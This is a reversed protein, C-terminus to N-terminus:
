AAEEDDGYGPNYPDYFNLEELDEYGEEVMYSGCSPCVTERPNMGKAFYASEAITISHECCECIFTRSM